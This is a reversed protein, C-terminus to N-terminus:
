MHKNKKSRYGVRKKIKGDTAIERNYISSTKVEDPYHSELFLELELVQISMTGDSTYKLFTDQSNWNANDLFYKSKTFTEKMEDTMQRELYNMYELEETSAHQKITDVWSSWREKAIRQSIENISPRTYRRLDKIFKQYAKQSSPTSIEGRRVAGAYTSGITQVEEPELNYLEGSNDDYMKLRKKLEPLRKLLKATEREISKAQEELSLKFFDKDIKPM